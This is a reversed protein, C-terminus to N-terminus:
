TKHRDGEVPLGEDNSFEDAGRSLVSKEERVMSDIYDQESIDDNAMKKFNEFSDAERLARAIAALAQSMSRIERNQRSTIEFLADGSATGFLERLRLKQAEEEELQGTALELVRRNRVDDAWDFPRKPASRRREFRAVHEELEQQKDPRKVYEELCHIVWDPVNRHSRKAPNILWAQISRNSVKENTQEHIARIVADNDGAFHRNIITALREHRPFPFMTNM